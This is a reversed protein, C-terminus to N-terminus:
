LKRVNEPSISIFHLKPMFNILKKKFYRSCYCIAYYQGSKGKRFTPKGKPTEIETM